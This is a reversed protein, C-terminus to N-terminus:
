ASFRKGMMESTSAVKQNLPETAETLFQFFMDSIRGSQNFYHDMNSRMLKDNMNIMDSVTKCNFIEKSIEMNDSFSENAFRILEATFARTMDATINGSQMAAELHERSQQMAESFDRAASDSVKSFQDATERGYKLLEAQTKQADFTSAGAFMRNMKEATFDMVKKASTQTPKAAKAKAAFTTKAKTKSSAPKKKAAPKASMSKNKKSTAM